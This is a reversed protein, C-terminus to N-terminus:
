KMVLKTIQFNNLRCVIKTAFILKQNQNRIKIKSKHSFCLERKSSESYQGFWKLVLSPIQSNYLLPAIKQSLYKKPNPNLNPNRIQIKRESLFLAWTKIVWFIQFIQTKYLLPAIKLVFVKKSKSEKNSNQKLLSVSSVNQHCLEISCQGFRKM